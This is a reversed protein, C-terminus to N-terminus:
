RGNSNNENKVEIARLVAENFVRQVAKKRLRHKKSRVGSKGLLLRFAENSLIVRMRGKHDQKIRVFFQEEKKNLM